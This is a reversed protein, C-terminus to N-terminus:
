NGAPGVLTLICIHGGMLVDEKLDTLARTPSDQEKGMRKPLHRSRVPHDAAWLHPINNFVWFEHLIIGIVSPTM